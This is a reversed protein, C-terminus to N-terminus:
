SLIMFRSHFIEWLPDPLCLLAVASSCYLKGRGDKFEEEEFFIIESSLHYQSIEVSCDKGPKKEGCKKRGFM